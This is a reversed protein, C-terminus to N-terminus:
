SELLRGLHEVKVRLYAAAENATLQGAHYAALVSEILPTGLKTRMNAYYNGGSQREAERERQLYEDRKAQYHEVSAVGLHVLRRLVVENSVRFTSALGSLESDTWTKQSTVAQVSPERRLQAAPVLVEAAVANCFVEVRDREPTSGAGEHLDCMASAGLMLHAVEHVLSFIRAAVADAANVAVAPLIDGRIAFARAESVDVGSFQFCLVGQLEIARRWGALADYWHKWGTQESSRIGLATRLRGAVTDAPEDLSARLQFRPLDIGAARFAEIAVERMEHAWRIEAALEPSESALAVPLRRFERLADFDTPPAPLYFVVIPRKYVEGLKRLQAITPADGGSEWARVATVDVGVRSAAMDVTLRAKERAWQLLAPKVKSTKKGVPVPHRKVPYRL